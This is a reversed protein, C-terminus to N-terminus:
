AYKLCILYHWDGLFWFFFKVWETLGRESILGEKLCKKRLQNNGKRVCSKGEWMSKEVWDKFFESWLNKNFTNGSLIKKSIMSFKGCKQYTNVKV